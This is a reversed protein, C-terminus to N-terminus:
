RPKHARLWHVRYATASRADRRLSWPLEAEEVIRYRAELEVGDVIRRRVAAAPDADGLREAEAVIGSQWAYPSALVIEGGPACLGDVVSLLRAPAAVADIVNLAVVRDFAGPVLPPDLADGCVLAIPSPPPPPAPVTAAVYHRGAARRAYALPEGRLLRRARRLAGMQLDVGVVLDTTRALEFLGRGPGCGLEVAREVPALSPLRAALAELGFRAGPGDPPPQARDGWHADIYISLHELLWPYPADDPGGVALLGATDPHLDRELVGTGFRAMFAATDTVVIPIGDVIPYRRACSPNDCALVGEDIDGDAAVRLTAVLGLTHMERGRETRARCAPCVLPLLSPLDARV